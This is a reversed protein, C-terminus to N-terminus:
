FSDLSVIKLIKKFVSPSGILRLDVPLLNWLQIGQYLFSRQCKTKIYMPLTLREDYKFRTGHFHPEQHSVIKEFFYPQEYSVVSKCFIICTFYKVIHHLSLLSLSRYVQGRLVDCDGLLSVEKNQVM